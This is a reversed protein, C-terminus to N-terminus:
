EDSSEKKNQQETAWDDFLGMFLEKRANLIARQENDKSLAKDVASEWEKRLKKFYRKKM